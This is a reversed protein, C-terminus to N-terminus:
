DFFRATKFYAFYMQLLKADIPPCVIDTDALATLTNHCDFRLWNIPQQQASLPMRHLAPLLPYLHNDPQRELAQLWQLYPVTELPYGLERLHYFLDAWRTPQPNIIHFVQGAAKPQLSLQVIAQAAYDVPVINDVIEDLQPTKGLKICGKMALALFDEGSSIGTQSHGAIRTPRYISVALGRQIAQTLLKEAVWKTQIYGNDMVQQADLTDTERFIRIYESNNPFLVGISSVFHLSKPKLQAVLKLVEVSGEVNAAKLAEYPYAHNVQAGNHYVADVQYALQQFQSEPMGLLPKAIDGPIPMIRFRYEDRWLGHLHLTQHLREFGDSVSAARVLCYVDATTRQLLEHLLYTGLFGTAGTLLVTRLTQPQLASNDALPQIALDLKAEADFDLTDELIDTSDEGGDRAYQLAQALEAITPREFLTRLSLAVGCQARIRGIIQTAVLSHGGLKFFNDHIGVRELKLVESWIAALQTEDPNSPAVFNDKAAQRQASLQALARRDVKGNNTLPLANILIFASPVMYEPLKGRLYAQLGGAMTRQLMNFFGQNKILQYFAAEFETKEAASLQLKIGAQTGRQWVVKGNLWPTNPLQLSLSKGPTFTESVGTLQVGTSSCDRTQLTLTEENINVLCQSKCPVRDLTLTSVVYAVLRQTGDSSTEVIVAADRVHHDQRLLAEIAGLEIRFGRIKVQNDIRNIYEINGDPLYRALDGSKYLRAESDTSFPNKIFKEPNLEPRNLYGRTLGVGGIYLEGAIGVPLPQLYADLIYIQINPLPRGIPLMGSDNDPPNEFITACVTSETPGYANFFRRGQSWKTALAPPCSEGAVVINQLEALEDPVLQSLASPPLTIHTIAHRRLTRTLPAGPLLDNSAAVYLTAGAGFAMIIEWISADFSLSAFQLIRNNAQLGFLQIQACCLNYVGRHQIPVGKPQGTSGSTYIVYALDEMGILTDLNQTPMTEFASWDKDLLVVYAQHQPLVDIFKEQTLLVPAEADSLMFALLDAPYKPDLPVYAAGVKLVGLVAVIMELSREVCIGVLTNSKVGLAQLYHALQNVRQNLIQYSLVQDDYVVANATPTQEAHDEFVTVLTRQPAYTVQTDNFAYLLQNLDATPVIQLQQIPIDSQELVRTLLHAICHKLQEIEEAKFVCLRYDFHMNVDDDQHYETIYMDLASQGYGTNLLVTTHATYDGFQATYDHKEYSLTMDFLQQRGSKQVGAQKNMEGLPFRQYRYDKQLTKSIAQVLEIFTLQTGFQFWAPIMSAFMGLTQRFVASTRNLISLGIIFDERGYARVFYCYLVGLFVHFLSVKHQNAFDSLQNYHARRLVLTSRQNKLAEDDLQQLCPHSILPEPLVCFKEQWYRSHQVFTTSNLYAQEKEIFHTYSYCQPNERKHGQSLATYNAAVQQAFLSIGWGDLTLHHHMTFCYCCNSAIKLLAFRYLPERYLDFPQLMAQQMWTLAHQIADDQQSFDLNEVTVSIDLPFTQQPLADAEDVILENKHFFTRLADNEQVVQEIAQAFLTHDILGDIQFYGGINYLPMDPHLTQNFWIERQVSSLAYKISHSSM